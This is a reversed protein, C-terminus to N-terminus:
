DLDSLGTDTGMTTSSRTIQKPTQSDSTSLKKVHQSKDKSALHQDFFDHDMYFPKRTLPSASYFASLIRKSDLTKSTRPASYISGRMPKMGYIDTHPQAWANIAPSIMATLISVILSQIIFTKM